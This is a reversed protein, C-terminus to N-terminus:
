AAEDVKALRKFMEFKEFELEKLITQKAENKDLGRRAEDFEIKKIRLEIESERNHGNNFDTFALSIVCHGDM